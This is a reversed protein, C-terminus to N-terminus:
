HVFSISDSQMRQPEKGLELNTIPRATVFYFIDTASVIDFTCGQRRSEFM